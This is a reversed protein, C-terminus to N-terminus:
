DMMKRRLEGGTGCEGEGGDWEVEMGGEIGCVSLQFLGLLGGGWILFGFM